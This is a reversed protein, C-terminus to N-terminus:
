KQRNRTRRVEPAIRWEVEGRAQREKKIRDVWQLIAEEVIRVQSMGLTEAANRIEAQVHPLVRCVLSGQRRRQPSPRPANKTANVVGAVVDAFGAPARFAQGSSAGALQDFDLVTKKATPKRKKM